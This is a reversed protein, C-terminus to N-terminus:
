KVGSVLIKNPIMELELKVREHNYDSLSDM